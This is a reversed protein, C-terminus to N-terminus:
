ELAKRLTSHLAKLNVNTQSPLSSGRANNCVRHALRLNELNNRGGYQPPPTGNPRLEWCTIIEGCIWCLDNYMIRLRSKKTGWHGKRM